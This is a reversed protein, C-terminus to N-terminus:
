YKQNESPNMSKMYEKRLAKFQKWEEESKWMWRYKKEKVVLSSPINYAPVFHFTAVSDIQIISDDRVLQFTERRLTRRDIIKFINRCLVKRDNFVVPHEMIITDNKIIYAGGYNKITYTGGFACIPKNNFKEINDSLNIKDSLIPSDESPYEIQRPQGNSDLYTASSMFNFFAYSYDNYIIINKTLYWSYYASDSRYFGDIDIYKNIDNQSNCFFANQSKTSVMRKPFFRNYITVCSTTNILLFILISFLSIKHNSSM